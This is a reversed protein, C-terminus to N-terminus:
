GVLVRTAPYRNASTKAGRLALLFSLPGVRGLFMLLIILWKGSVTLQETLGTSLGSTGMASVVEFFLDEMRAQPLSISLLLSGVFVAGLSLIVVIIAQQISAAPISRSSIVVTDRGRVWSLMTLVLLAFTGVKVGGATSASAGGVFMLFMTLLRSSGQMQTLDLSNFGATRTSVAQFWANYLRQPWPMGALLGQNEFCLFLLTGGVCLILTGGLVLREYVGLPLKRPEFVFRVLGLMVAFGLGGLIVLLSLLTLLFPEQQFASLNGPHLSFGANCFASISMFAGYGLSQALGMGLNRQYFVSLLACGLAEITFTGLVIIFLMQKARQSHEEKTSERMAASGLFGLKRGLLLAIFTTLSMIGLGGLQILLAMVLKGSNSLATSIDIVSLGTVCVASAATFISNLLGLSSGDSSCQPLNLISAGVFILALFSGVLSRGPNELLQHWLLSTKGTLGQLFVYACLQQVLMGWYLLQWSANQLALLLNLPLLLLSLWAMGPLTRLFVAVLGASGAQGQASKKAQLWLFGLARFQLYLSLFSGCLFYILLLKGQLAQQASDEALSRLLLVLFGAQTLFVLRLLEPDLFHELLRERRKKYFVRDQLRAQSNTSASIVYHSQLLCVALGLLASFVHRSFTLLYLPLPLISLYLLDSLAASSPIEREHLVFRQRLFSHLLFGAAAFLLGLGLWSELSFPFLGSSGFVQENSKQSLLLLAHFCSSLIFLFGHRVFLERLFQKRFRPSNGESYRM